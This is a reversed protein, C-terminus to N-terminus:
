VRWSETSAPREVMAFPTPQVAADRQTADGRGIESCARCRHIHRVPHAAVVFGREGIWLKERELLFDADVPGSHVFQAPTEFFALATPRGKLGGPTIELPRM